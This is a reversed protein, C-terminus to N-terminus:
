DSRTIKLAAADYEAQTAVLPESLADIVAPIFEMDFCGVYDEKVTEYSAALKVAIDHMAYRVDIIGITDIANHWYTDYSGRLIVQIHEWTCCATHTTEKADQPTTEATALTLILWQYDEPIDAETLRGGEIMDLLGKRLKEYTDTM